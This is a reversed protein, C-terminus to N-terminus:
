KNKKIAKLLVKDKQKAIWMDIPYFIAAGAIQMLFMSLIYNLEWNELLVWLIPAIVIGGLQWRLSYMLFRKWNM